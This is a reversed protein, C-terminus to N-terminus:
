KKPKVKSERVIATGVTLSRVHRQRVLEMVRKSEACFVVQEVGKHEIVLEYM